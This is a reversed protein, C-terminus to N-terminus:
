DNKININYKNSFDIIANCFNEVTDCNKFYEDIILLGGRMYSFLNEIDDNDVDEFNEKFALKIKEDNELDTRRTLIMHQYIRIFSYRESNIQDLFVTAKVSKDNDDDAKKNEIIGLMMAVMVCDVLRNFIYVEKNIIRNNEDTDKLIFNSKEIGSTDKSYKKVINSYEGYIIINKKFM